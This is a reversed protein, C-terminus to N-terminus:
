ILFDPMMINSYKTSVLTPHPFCFFLFFFVRRIHVTSPASHGRSAAFFNDFIPFFLFFIPSFLPFIPFFDLFFLFCRSSFALIPFTRESQGEQRLGIPSAVSSTHLSNTVPQPGTPRCYTCSHTPGIGLKNKHM